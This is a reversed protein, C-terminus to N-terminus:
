CQTQREGYEDWCFAHEEQNRVMTVIALFAEMHTKFGIQTPGADDWWIMPKCNFRDVYYWDTPKRIRYNKMMAPPKFNRRKHEYADSDAWPDENNM